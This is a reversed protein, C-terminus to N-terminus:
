NICVPNILSASHYDDLNKFHFSHFKKFHEKLDRCCGVLSHRLRKVKKNLVNIVIRSNRINYVNRYFEYAGISDLERYDVLQMIDEWPLEALSDDEFKLVDEARIGLKPIQESLSKLSRSLKSAEANIANSLSAISRGIDHKTEWIEPVFLDIYKKQPAPKSCSLLQASFNKYNNPYSNHIQYLEFCNSIAKTNRGLNETVMHTLSYSTSVKKKSMNRVETPENGNRFLEKFAATYSTDM